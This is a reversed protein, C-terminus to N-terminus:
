SGIGLAEAPESRGRVGPKTYIRQLHNEVTLESLFLEDAV